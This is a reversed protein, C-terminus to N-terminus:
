HLRKTTGYFVFSEPRERQLNQCLLSELDEQNGIVKSGIDDCDELFVVVWRDNHAIQESLFRSLQNSPSLYSFRELSEIPDVGSKRTLFTWGSDLRGDLASVLAAPPEFVLFANQEDIVYEIPITPKSEVGFFAPTM